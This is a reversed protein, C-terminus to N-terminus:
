ANDTDVCQKKFMALDFQWAQVRGGNHRVQKAVRNNSAKIILGERVLADRLNGKDFPVPQDIERFHRVFHKMASDPFLDVQKGDTSLKGITKRNLVISSMETIDTSQTTLGKVIVSETAIQHELIGWFLAVPNQAKLKGTDSQLYKKVIDAYEKVLAEYRSEDIAGVHVAFKCFLEFGAANLAWNTAIRLGNSIGTVSDSFYDIRNTVMAKLNEQWNDQSIVWHIFKPIFGKYQNQMDKCVKGADQDHDPEVELVITRGSVSEVNDVFDEGTSLLLGRIHPAKQLKLSSNLRGRGRNDAHNQIIRIIEKKSIVIAKYDDLIFIMDRFGYGEMEISNATGSWSTIQDGFDGSFSGVLNAIFTKGGGSPGKLHLTCKQRGLEGVIWSAFPSLAVHGLVPFMVATSKLSTFENILHLTLHKIEEDPLLIFNIKRALNSGSLDVVQEDIEKIGDPTIRMNSLLFEKYGPTFGTCMSIEEEPVKKSISEQVAIMLDKSSGYLIADPGVERHIAPMFMRASFEEASLIFHSEKGNLSIVMKYLRQIIEGFDVMSLIMVITLKFNAIMAGNKYTGKEDTSYIDQKVSKGNAEEVSNGDESEVAADSEIGDVGIDETKDAANDEDTILNKM